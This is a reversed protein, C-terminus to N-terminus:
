VAFYETMQVITQDTKPNDMVLRGQELIIIRSSVEAVHTLDHSSIIFTHRDIREKILNKLRIQSTPDLSAFPEDLLVLEPDGILAGIIGVKKQNGKSLDRIYKKKGLVEGNFFEAFQGVFEQTDAKSWNHLGGIFDFYEDPTLFDVLFTEDLFAATYKKWSEDESVDIGKSYVNGKTAKILDLVLSFATTKGAGNNGVLGVCEGANIGIEDIQLVVADGYNKVINKFQLLM